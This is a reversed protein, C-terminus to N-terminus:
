LCLKHKILVEKEEVAVIKYKSLDKTFIKGAIGVLLLPTIFLGAELSANSLMNGTDNKRLKSAIENAYERKVQITGYGAKVANKLAEESTVEVTDNLHERNGM